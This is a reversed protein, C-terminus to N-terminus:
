CPAGAPEGERRLKVQKRRLGLIRTRSPRALRRPQAKRLEEPRRSALRSRSTARNSAALRRAAEQSSAGGRTKNGRLSRRPTGTALRTIKVESGDGGYSGSDDHSTPQRVDAIHGM